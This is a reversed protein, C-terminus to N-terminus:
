SKGHLKRWNEWYETMKISKDKAKQLKYEKAYEEGYLKIHNNFQIDHMSKGYMPNNKGKNAISLKNLRENELKLAEDLGYKNIRAQLVSKGHMGNNEGKSTIKLKNLMICQRKNAEEKGYKELWVSYPSRGYMGNNEGKTNTHAISHTYGGVRINYTSSKKIFINNVIEEEKEYAESETHFFELIRRSFNEKGYKKIAKHLLKGSGLYGDDLIHTTHVGIYIKGNILNRTEYVFYYRKLKM